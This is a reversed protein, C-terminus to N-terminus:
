AYTDIVSGVTDTANPRAAEQQGTQQAQTAAQQAAKQASQAQLEAIQQQLAQIM